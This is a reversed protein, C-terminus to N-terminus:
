KHKLKLRKRRKYMASEETGNILVTNTNTYTYLENACIGHDIAFM